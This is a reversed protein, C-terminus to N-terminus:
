KWCRWGEARSCARRSSAILWRSTLTVAAQLSSSGSERSANKHELLAALGVAGAGEVVFKMRELFLVVAMAIPEEAVLAIDDVYRTIIEFPREGVRSVAIGDAITPLPTRSSVKGEKFSTFASTASETQV